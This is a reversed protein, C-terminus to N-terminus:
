SSSLHGTDVLPLWRFNVLILNILVFASYKADESSEFDSQSIANASLILRPRRLSLYLGCLERRICSVPM